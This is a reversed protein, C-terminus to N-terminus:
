FNMKLAITPEKDEDRGTDQRALGERAGGGAAAGKRIVEEIFSKQAGDMAGVIAKFATPERGALEMLRTSTERWVGEGELKARQLLTPVVLSFALSRKDSPLAIAFSTLAQAVVIRAEDTSEITSPQALFSNLRPLLQAAIEAETTSPLSPSNVTATFLLLLSRSLGAAVKTTMHSDLCDSLESVFDIITPDHVPMIKAASTLLITSALLANKECPVDTESARKQTHKIVMLLRSLTTRLQIPVEPQPNRVLTTVFRRFIPLAEPVLTEQCAPTSVLTTFMHLICAHLDSKIIAPFVQAADVLATLSSLVLTIVDPSLTTRLGSNQSLSPIHRSIVLVIIRTLEFLQDIDDSLHDGSEYDQSRRASPHGICLNHAIEVVVTQIEIGETLILRDFLDMSESFIADQYIALGAVSPRVIKQMARLVGLTRESTMATDSTSRGVLAEFTIGFLVFFFAVPEDRYNIDQSGNQSGKSTGLDAKGDLADFVFESDEDILSAIADVFNLWSAQYFQDTLTSM